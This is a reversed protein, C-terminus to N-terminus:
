MTLTFNTGTSITITNTNNQALGFVTFNSDSLYALAIRGTFNGLGSAVTGVSWTNPELNAPNGTIRVLDTIYYGNLNGTGVRDYAHINGNNLRGSVTGHAFRGVRQIILDIWELLPEITKESAGSGFIGAYQAGVHIANVEEGLEAISSSNEAIAKENVDIQRTHTALTQVVTEYESELNELGDQATQVATKNQNLATDIKDMNGNFDTLWSTIDNAAYKILNYFVTKLTGAM